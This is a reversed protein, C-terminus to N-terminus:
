PFWPCQLQIVAQGTKHQDRNQRKFYVTVALVANTILANANKCSIRVIFSLLIHDQTIGLNLATITVVLTIAGKVDITRSLLGADVMKVHM